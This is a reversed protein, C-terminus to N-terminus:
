GQTTLAYWFPADLLGAEVALHLDLEIAVAKAWSIDYTCRPGVKVGPAQKWVGWWSGIVISIGFSSGINVPETKALPIINPSISLINDVWSLDATVALPPTLKACTSTFSQTFQVIAQPFPLNAHLHLFHPHAQWPCECCQPSLIHKRRSAVQSPPTSCSPSEKRPPSGNKCQPEMYIRHLAPNASTSVNEEPELSHWNRQHSGHIRNRDMVRTPALHCFLQRGVKQHSWFWGSTFLSSCTQKQALSVPM